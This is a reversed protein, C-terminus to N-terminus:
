QNHYYFILLGVGFLVIIMVATAKTYVRWNQRQIDKLFPKHGNVTPVEYRLDRMNTASAYHAIDYQNTIKYMYHDIHMELPYAHQLLAKAAQPTVIYLVAGTLKTVNKLLLSGPIPYLDKSLLHYALRLIGYKRKVAEAYVSEVYAVGDSMSSKFDDEVIACDRGLKVCMEWCKIHSLSCGVNGKTSMAEHTYRGNKIEDYARVSVIRKLDSDSMIRGDVADVFTFDTLGLKRVEERTKLARDPDTKDLTICLTKLM